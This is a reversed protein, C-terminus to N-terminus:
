NLADTADILDISQMISRTQNIVNVMNEFYDLQAPTLESNSRQKLWRRLVQYGGISFEWSPIPVNDVRHTQSIAITERDSQDAAISSLDVDTTDRRNLKSPGVTNGRSTHLRMLETGFQSIKRFLEPSNPIEINPYDRRFADSNRLRYNPSHFQGYIFGGLQLASIQDPSILEPTCDESTSRYALGTKKETQRIFEETFNDRRGSSADPYLFLPALYPAGHASYFVRDSILETTALFHDYEGPNTSQRMFVFGYNPQLMHQMVKWRARGLLQQDYYLWRVDLPAVMYRRINDETYRVQKAKEIIWDPITGRFSEPNTILQKMRDTLVDRSLDTFLGDQKTQVGSIYEQFVDTLAIGDRTQPSKKTVLHFHPAAPEVVQTALSQIESENMAALKSESSGLIEGFYVSSSIGSKVFVFIGVGQKIAFINEDRDGNQSLERKTVSGHLDFFYMSDFTTLLSERMKRHTIGHFFTNGTIFALVGRGAKAIHHEAWCIFKIFDDNLNIKKESLGHKYQDLQSLIWPTRNLKGFNSYPPNGVIALIHDDDILEDQPGELPNLCRILNRDTGFTNRLLYNGTVATAPRIEYGAIRISESNENQRRQLDHLFIGHGCAPDVVM